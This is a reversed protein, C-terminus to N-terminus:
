RPLDLLTLGLYSTIGVAVFLVSFHAPKDRASTWYAALAWLIPFLVAALAMQNVRELPLLLTMLLTLPVCAVLALPGAALFTLWKYGTSTTQATLPAATDLQPARYERNLLCAVTACLAFWALAYSLGFEVGYAQSWLITSLLLAAWGAYVLVRNGRGKSRWAGRLAAIASAGSALALLLLSNALATFM